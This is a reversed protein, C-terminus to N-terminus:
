AGQIQGILYVEFTNCLMNELDSGLSVLQSSPSITVM